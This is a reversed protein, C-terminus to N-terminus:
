QHPFRLIFTTGEQEVSHVDISGDLMDIIQKVIVLGLGTGNTTRSADARYFPEFIFPLQDTAIGIGNDQFTIEVYEHNQRSTITIEGQNRGYKIANSLLNEIAHSLLTENGLISIAELEMWVTIHKQQLAWQYDQVVQKVLADLSFSQRQEVLKTANQWLLLQKTLYSLRNSETEIISGYEQVMTDSNSQQQILAAYGKINQLPTQFDHSVNRIFDKQLERQRKLEETMGNFNRALVGIEDQRSLEVYADFNEDAVQKTAASLYRIPKILYSAAFIMAIISLLPILVLLTGLIFHVENFLLKIDLRVFMAYTQNNYTFPMGVTNKLDNAFFGTIFLQQPYEKIGHYTEGSLVTDVVGKPLDKLRFDTGYFQGHDKEDVLYIQYGIQSLQTFYADLSSPPSQQIYTTIDNMIMTYKADNQGKIVQHYLANMMLFGLISSIAMIAVTFVTFKSYLTKM